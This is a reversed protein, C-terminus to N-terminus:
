KFHRTVLSAAQALRSAVRLAALRRRFAPGQAQVQEEFRKAVFEYLAYDLEHYRRLISMEAADLDNMPRRPATNERTYPRFPWGLKGQFMALTEDFRETLGAVVFREVLNKKAIELDQEDPVGSWKGCLYRVQQNAILRALGVLDLAGSKIEAHLHHDPHRKAYNFFSKLREIPERLLTIYQTPADGMVEHLGFPAHGTVFRLRRPQARALEGLEAKYFDPEKKRVSYWEGDAYSRKIVGDLATGATKPVHVFIIIPNEGEM